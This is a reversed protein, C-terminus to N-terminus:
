KCSKRENSQSSKFLVEINEAQALLFLGRFKVLFFALSYYLLLIIYLLTGPVSLHQAAGFACIQNNKLKLNVNVQRWGFKKANIM